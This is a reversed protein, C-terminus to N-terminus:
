KIRYGNGYSNEIFFDNNKIKDRTKKKFRSILQVINNQITEDCSEGVYLAINNVSLFKAKNELLLNILQIENKTIMIQKNKYFLENTEKDWIYNDDLRLKCNEIDLKEIVKFISSKLEEIGFPKIIYSSIQLDIAKLLKDKQSHATLFIIPTSDDNIRIQSAVEVGNLKPMIIDLLIIDPKKDNYIKLADEGNSATFIKYFYKKM